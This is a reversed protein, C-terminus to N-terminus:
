DQCTNSWRQSGKPLTTLPVSDGHNGGQSQIPWVVEFCATASELVGPFHSAPSDGSALADIIEEGSVFYLFIVRM